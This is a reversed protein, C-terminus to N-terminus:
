HWGMWVGRKFFPISRAAKSTKQREEMEGAIGTEFYGFVPRYNKLHEPLDPRAFFAYLEQEEANTTEGEFFRELLNEIYIYEDAKM